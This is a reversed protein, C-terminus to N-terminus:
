EHHYLIHNPQRSGLVMHETGGNKEFPITLKIFLDCKRENDVNKPLQFYQIKRYQYFPFIYLEKKKIM